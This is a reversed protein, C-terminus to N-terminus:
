KADKIAKVVQSDNKLNEWFLVQDKAIYMVDEPGHLEKGLKALSLNQDAAADDAPQQVDQQGQPYYINKLKIEEPVEGVTEASTNVTVNAHANVAVGFTTNEGALTSAAPSPSPAVDASTTVGASALNLNM